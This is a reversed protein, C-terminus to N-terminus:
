NAALIKVSAIAKTAEIIAVGSNVYAYPLTCHPCANGLDVLCQLLIFHACLKIHWSTLLPLVFLLLYVCHACVFSILLM